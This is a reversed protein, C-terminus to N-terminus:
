GGRDPQKKDGTHVTRSLERFPNTGGTAAQPATAIMVAAIEMCGSILHRSLLKQCALWHGAVTRLRCQGSAMGISVTTM